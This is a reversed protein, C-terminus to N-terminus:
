NGEAHFFEPRSDLLARIAEYYKAVEPHQQVKARQAELGTRYRDMTIKQERLQRGEDVYDYLVTIYKDIASVFKAENTNKTEYEQLTQILWSFHSFENLILQLAEKERRAKSALKRQNAFTSTDDAYVEVLDHITALQAVKGIHLSPDIMPALVCALFTVSWSHEADNEWRREGLPLLTDRKVHYFPLVIKRILKEIDAHTPKNM